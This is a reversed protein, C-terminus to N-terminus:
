KRKLQKARGASAAAAQKAISLMDLDPEVDTKVGDKADIAAKREEVKKPIPASALQAKIALLEFDVVEGRASRVFKSM